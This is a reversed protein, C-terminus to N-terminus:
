KYLPARNFNEERACKLNEKSLTLHTTLLYSPTPNNSPLLPNHSPAIDQTPPFFSSLRSKIKTSRKIMERTIVIANETKFNM